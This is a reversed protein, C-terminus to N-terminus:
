AYISVHGGTRDAIAVLTKESVNYVAAREAPTIRALPRRNAGSDQANFDMRTIEFCRGGQGLPQGIYVFRLTQNDAVAYFDRVEGANVARHEGQYISDLPVSAFRSKNGIAECVYVTDDYVSFKGRAKLPRKDVVARAMHGNEALGVRYISAMAPADRNDGSRSWATFLLTERYLAMHTVLEEGTNDHILKSADDRTDIRLISGTFDVFYIYEGDAVPMPVDKFFTRMPFSKQEQRAAFPKAYVDLVQVDAEAQTRLIYLKPGSMCARYHPSPAPVSGAGVPLGNKVQNIFVRNKASTVIYPGNLDISFVDEVNLPTERANGGGWLLAKSETDVCCLKAANNRVHKWFIMMKNYIVAPSIRGGALDIKEALPPRGGAPQAAPASADARTEIVCCNQRSGDVGAPLFVDRLYTVKEGCEPCSGQELDYQLRCKECCSFVGGCHPCENEDYRIYAKCYPCEQRLRIGCEPCYIVEEEASGYDDEDHKWPCGWCSLPM